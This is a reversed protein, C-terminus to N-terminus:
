GYLAKWDAITAPSMSLRKEIDSAKGAMSKLGDVLMRKYLEPVEIVKSFIDMPVEAALAVYDVNSIKFFNDYVKRYQKSQPQYMRITLAMDFDSVSCHHNFCFEKRKAKRTMEVIYKLRGATIDYHDIAAKKGNKVYYRTIEDFDLKDLSSM